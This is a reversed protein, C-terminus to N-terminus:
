CLAAISEPAAEASDHISRATKLFADWWDEPEQEAGGNDFLRTEVPEFSWAAVEGCLSVLATKCGSTGLDVALVYTQDAKM